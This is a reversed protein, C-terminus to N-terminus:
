RAWAAAIAGALRANSEVLAVNARLTAGDSLEHLLGLLAPTVARGRIGRGALRGEAERVWATFAQTDIAELEPIPHAVLVGRGTRMLESHLYGALEAPDDFRADVRADSERQYFAPFADTGFGVVPVGLTELAERTAEVDLISKVGSAVVAVPFRALAALDSSVDLQTGYGRHVGGIGGTAFVRIGAAAAIEMTASVTTAASKGRHMLVGLNSTNAKEIEGPEGPVGLMRELEVDTMGAIPVGDLVGVLSPTAGSARVADCLRAHLARAESQPVGHALLTTELAVRAPATRIQIDRM